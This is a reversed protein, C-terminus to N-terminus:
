LGEQKEQIKRIKERIKLIKERVKRSCKTPDKSFRCYPIGARLNSIKEELAQIKYRTICDTKESGRLGECAKESKKFVAKYAKSAAFALLAVLMAGGIFKGAPSALFVVLAPRLAKWGGGALRFLSSYGISFATQGVVPGLGGPAPVPGKDAEIEAGLEEFTKESREKSAEVKEEAKKVDGGKKKTDRLKEKDISELYKVEAYEVRKVLLDIKKRPTTPIRRIQALNDREEEWKKRWKELQSQELLLNETVFDRVVPQSSFNYLSLPCFNFIDGFERLKTLYFSEMVLDHKKSPIEGEILIHIIEYDTAENMFFKRAIMTDEPNMEDLFECLTERAISLFLHTDKIKNTEM